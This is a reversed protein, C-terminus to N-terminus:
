FTVMMGLWYQVGDFSPNQDRGHIDGNSLHFYRAGGLLFLNDKLRLSAGV